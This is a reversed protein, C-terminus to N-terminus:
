YMLVRASFTCSVTVYMCLSSSCQVLYSTGVPPFECLSSNFLTKYSDFISVLESCEGFFTTGVKSLIDDVLKLFIEDVNFNDKASSECFRM